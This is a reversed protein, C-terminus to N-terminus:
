PTRRQRRQALNLHAFPLDSTSFRLRVEFWRLFRSVFFSSFFTHTWFWSRLFLQPFVSPNPPPIFFVARIGWGAWGDSPAKAARPWLLHPWRGARRSTRPTTARQCSCCRCPCRSRNSTKGLTKRLYMNRRDLFVLLFVVEGGPPPPESVWASLPMPHGCVEKKGAYSFKMRGPWLSDTARGQKSNTGTKLNAEFPSWLFVSGM